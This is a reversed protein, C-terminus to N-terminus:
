RRIRSLIYLLLSLLASLLICTTLPFYFASRKGRWVIDGPLRGLPMNFRAAIMVCAGAILIIVGIVVITRGLGYMGETYFRPERGPRGLTAM